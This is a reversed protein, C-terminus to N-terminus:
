CLMQSPTCDLTAGHFEIEAFYNQLTTDRMQADSLIFGFQVTDGILSTNLRHWIQSQTPATPTNLNYTFETLGLNTSEACTYLVTSYITGSNQVGSLNIGPLSPFLPDTSTMTNYVNTSDQSLFMMLTLENIPTSTFLYQQVGLRTKRGMSWSLPFQKSQIFPVYLRQILGAGLYTYSSENFGADIVFTNQTTFSVKYVNGNLETGITGLAGSILIYDGDNLMHNYSTITVTTGGSFSTILLSTAEGTGQGRIVVFGQANGAIVEPQLLTSQGANWPDNWQEWTAYVTGITGWTQGTSRRFSGYTTYSEYFLGYSNDRYNYQLTASPFLFNSNVLNSNFSFYIWENIYDRQACIRQAGNNLLSIEFIEDPIDLDIREAGTQTTIIYGRSGVSFVGKDMVVTSFTSQTGLESNVIFFNFPVIDNGTYIMRTQKTPFGVLLVDENGGVSIIPQDVGVNQFGGFGTVDSFYASPTATELTQVSAGPNYGAVLLPYFTTSASVPSGSFSATYYPTGNQSYVITDQLYIPTGSSTQVVVGFFILRDKFPVILRAGVLYYQAQPLNSISFNAQSIPPMFNVFGYGSSPTPPSGATPDGDYWRICDKTSSSVNTLYQIMGGTYTDSAISAYPFSVVVTTGSVSTVFGTQFNLSQSNATTSGVFENVFVWDGVVLPTATITFTMSTSSTRSITAPIQFQMGINTTTFPITIGPTVWFSNQYNTSWFQQYNQANWTVSTWSTKATYTIGNITTTQPNKFFSVKYSSYPYTNTINYAYTTDFALTNVYSSASNYYDELGLVPLGPYYAVTGTMTQGGGAAIFLVGTAYNISGSSGSGGSLTLVGTGLPDTYTTGDSSGVLSISTPVISATSSLGLATILNV